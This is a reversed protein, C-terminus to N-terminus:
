GLTRPLEPNARFILVKHSDRWGRRSFQPNRMPEQLHLSTQTSLQFNLEQNVRDSKQWLGNGMQSKSDSGQPSRLGRPPWKMSGYGTAKGLPHSTHAFSTLQSRSAGTLALHM